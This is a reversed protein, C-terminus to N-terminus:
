PDGVQWIWHVEWIHEVGPPMKCPLGHGGGSIRNKRLVLSVAGRPEKKMWAMERDGEHTVSQNELSGWSLEWSLVVVQCQIGHGLRWKEESSGVWRVEGCCRLHAPDLNYGNGEAWWSGLGLFHFNDVSFPVTFVNTPKFLFYNKHWRAPSLVKGLSKFYKDGRKTKCTEFKYFVQLIVVTFGSKDKVSIWWNSISQGM